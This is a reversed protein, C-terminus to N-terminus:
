SLPLILQNDTRIWFTNQSVIVLSPRVNVKFSQLGGTGTQNTLELSLLIPSRACVVMKVVKTAHWRLPRFNSIERNVRESIILQGLKYSKTKIFLGLQAGQRGIPYKM